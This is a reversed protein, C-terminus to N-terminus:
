EPRASLASLRTVSSTNVMHIRLMSESIEHKPTRAPASPQELWGVAGDPTGDGDIMPAVLPVDPADDDDDDGCVATDGERNPLRV